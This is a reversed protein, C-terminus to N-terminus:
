ESDVLGQGEASGNDRQARYEILNLAMACPLFHIYAPTHAVIM